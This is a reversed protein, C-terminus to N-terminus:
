RYHQFYLNISYIVVCGVIISGVILLARATQIKKIAVIQAVVTVFAVIALKFAIAGAFEWREYFYNAIPNAEM